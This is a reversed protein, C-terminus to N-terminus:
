VNGVSVVVNQSLVQGIHVDFYRLVNVMQLLVLDQDVVIVLAVQKLNEGLWDLVSGGQEILDDLSPVM